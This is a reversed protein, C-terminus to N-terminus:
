WNNNKGFFADYNHIAEPSAEATHKHLAQVGHKAWLNDKGIHTTKYRNGGKHCIIQDYNMM